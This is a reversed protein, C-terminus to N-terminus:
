KNVISTQGSLLKWGEKRRVLIGTEVLNYQSVKGATDTMTSHLRGTYTALDRNIPIIRLTDWSNIVSQFAPANQTLITVVSDYSISTTYGPPVWFFDNSSDLYRLEAKLGERGIDAYYNDLVRTTNEIITKKESPTLSSDDQKCSAFAISFVIVIISKLTMRIGKRHFIEM